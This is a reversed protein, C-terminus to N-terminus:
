GLGGFGGGDARLDAFRGAFFDDADAIATLGQWRFGFVRGGAGEYWVGAVRRQAEEFWPLLALLVALGMALLVSM